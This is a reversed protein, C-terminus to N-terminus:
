RNGFVECNESIEPSGDRLAVTYAGIPNADELEITVAAGTRDIADWSM